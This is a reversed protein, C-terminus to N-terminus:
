SVLRIDYSHFVRRIFEKIKKINEEGIEEDCYIASWGYNTWFLFRAKVTGILGLYDRSIGDGLFWNEGIDEFQQVINDQASRAYLLM